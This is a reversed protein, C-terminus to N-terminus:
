NWYVERGAARINDRSTSVLENTKRTTQTIERADTKGLISKNICAAVGFLTARQGRNAAEARQSLAYSHFGTRM